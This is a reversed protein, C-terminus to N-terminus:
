NLESAASRILGINREGECSVRSAHRGVPNREASSDSIFHGRSFDGVEAASVEMEVEAELSKSGLLCTQREKTM